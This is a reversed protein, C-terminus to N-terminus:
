RFLEKIVRKWRLDTASNAASYAFASSNHFSNASFLFPTPINKIKVMKERLEEGFIMM